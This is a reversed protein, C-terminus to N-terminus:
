GPGHRTVRRTMVSRRSLKGLGYLMLVALYYRKNRQIQNRLQHVMWRIRHIAIDSRGKNVAGADEEGIQMMSNWRRQGVITAWIVNIIPNVIEDAYSPNSRLVSSVLRASIATSVLGLSTLSHLICGWAKRTTPSRHLHYAFLVTTVLSTRHLIRELHWDESLLPPPPSNTLQPQTLVRRTRRQQLADEQVIIGSLSNRHRNIKVSDDNGLSFTGGVIGRTSPTKMEISPVSSAVPTDFSANDDENDVM